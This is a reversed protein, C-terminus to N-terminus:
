KKSINLFEMKNFRKEVSNESSSAEDADFELGADQLNIDSWYCHDEDNRSGEGLPATADKPDISPLRFDINRQSTLLNEDVIQGEVTKETTTVLSYSDPTDVTSQEVTHVDHTSTITTVGM